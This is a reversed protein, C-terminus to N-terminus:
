LPCFPQEWILPEMTNQLVFANPDYVHMCLCVDSSVLQTIAESHVSALADLENSVLVTLRCMVVCDLTVGCRDLEM